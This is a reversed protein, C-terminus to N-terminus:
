KVKWRKLRLMTDFLGTIEMAFIALSFRETVGKALDEHVGMRKVTFPDLSSKYLTKDTSFACRYGNRIVLKRITNNWNGNPYAFAIAAKKLHKELEFKSTRIEHEAEGIPIRTLIVHSCSHSGFSIGHNAMEKIEYWNLVVRGSQLSKMDIGVQCALKQFFNEIEGLSLTKFAEILNYIKDSEENRKFTNLCKLTSKIQPIDIFDAMSEIPLNLNYIREIIKRLRLPWFWRNTGVYATALFIIAPIKYKTLIPYAYDYNDRWGDDFTVLVTKPSFRWGRDLGSVFEQISLVRFKKKLFKMQKEFSELDVWLGPLGIQPTKHTSPLVRHYMLVIPRDKRGLILWLDLLHTYYLFASILFRILRKAFIIYREIM